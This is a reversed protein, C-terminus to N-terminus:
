PVPEKSPSLEIRSFTLLDYRSPTCNSVYIEEDTRRIESRKEPLLRGLDLRLKNERTGNSWLHQRRIGSGGAKASPAVQKSEPEQAERVVATIELTDGDMSTLEFTSIERMSVYNEDVRPGILRWRAGVGIPVDPLPVTLLVIEKHIDLMLGDTTTISPEYTRGASDIEASFSTANIGAVQQSAENTAAPPASAPQAESQGPVPEAASLKLAYRYREPSSGKTIAATLTARYADTSPRDDPAYPPSLYRHRSEREVTLLAKEECASCPHYRLLRRPEAGKAIVDLPKAFDDLTCGKEPQASPSKADATVPCPAPSCHSSSLVVCILALKARM